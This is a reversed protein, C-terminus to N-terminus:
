GGREVIEVRKVAGGEQRQKYKMYYKKEVSPLSWCSAAVADAAHFGGAAQNTARRRTPLAAATPTYPLARAAVVVDEFRAFLAGRSDYGGANQILRGYPM